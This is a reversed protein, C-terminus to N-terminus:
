VRNSTILSPLAAADCYIHRWYSFARDSRQIDMSVSCTGFATFCHNIFYVKWHIGVVNKMETITWLLQRNDTPSRWKLSMVSCLRTDWRYQLNSWVFHWSCFNRIVLSLLLGVLSRCAAVVDKKVACRLASVGAADVKWISCL